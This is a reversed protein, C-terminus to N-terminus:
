IFVYETQMAMERVQKGYKNSFTKGYVQKQEKEFKGFNFFHQDDMRFTIICAVAVFVASIWIMGSFGIVSLLSGVLISGLLASAGFASYM